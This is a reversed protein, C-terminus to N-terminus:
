QIDVIWIISDKSAMWSCHININILLFFYWVHLQIRLLLLGHLLGHYYVMNMSFLVYIDVYLCIHIYSYTHIYMYMHLHMWSYILFTWFSSCFINITRAPHKSKMSNINEKIGKWIEPTTLLFIIIIFSYFHEQSWICFISLYLNNKLNSPFPTSIM